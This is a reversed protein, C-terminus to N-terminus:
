LVRILGTLRHLLFRSLSMRPLANILDLRNAHNSCTCLISSLLIGLTIVCPLIKPSPLHSLGRIVFFPELIHPVVRIPSYHFLTCSLFSFDTTLDNLFDLGVGPRTASSFFLINIYLYLIKHTNESM